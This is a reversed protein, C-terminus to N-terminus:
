LGEESILYALITMAAAGLEFERPHVASFVDNDSHHFDFYRQVDPVYGIYAQVNKIQAIDAGGGGKRIWEILASSLFPLWSQMKELVAPNSGVSFGRPTLAGRDAEVAAIHKERGSQAWRGYEVAGNLGFEENIFFVSRITRRPQIALRKLLSLVELAQLCGAGDDHAGHGKDWSDFHGGVVVVEEPKERGTIECFLNYSLTDPANRCSLTLRVRARPNKKLTEHLADADRLGIAAAPIRPLSDAYILTGVHPVNDYKTTVSRVIVGVAGAKAAESPGRVRQAVARGYASFTETRGPDMPENFFVIKGAIKDALMEISDMGPVEVVEAEIGEAPTPISGGLAAVSLERGPMAPSRLIEASEVDGRIWRPVQVPQLTVNDFGLNEMTKKAWLIAKMSNDSGVLRPGIRCLGRLLHYGATDTLARQVIMRSIQLYRDFALTDPDAQSFATRAFCVSMVLVIIRCSASKKKM